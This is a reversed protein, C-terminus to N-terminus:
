AGANDAAKPEPLRKQESARVVRSKLKALVESMEKIKMDWDDIVKVLKKDEILKMELLKDKARNFGSSFATLSKIFTEIETPPSNGPKLYANVLEEFERVTMEKGDHEEPYKKVAEVFQLKPNWRDVNAMGYKGHANKVKVLITLMSYRMHSTDVGITKFLLDQWAVEVMEYFTTLPFPFDPHTVLSRLTFGKVIEKAGKFVYGKEKDKKSLLGPRWFRTLATYGIEFATEKIKKEWISRFDRLTNEVLDKKRMQLIISKSVPIPMLAIQEDTWFKQELKKLNAGTTQSRHFGEESEWFEYWIGACGSIMYYKEREKAKEDESLQEFAAYSMVKELGAPLEHYMKPIPKGTGPELVKKSGYVQNDEIEDRCKNYAGESEWFEYGKTVERLFGNALDQMKSQEEPSLNDFEDHTYIKLLGEKAVPEKSVVKSPKKSNKELKSDELDAATATRKAKM